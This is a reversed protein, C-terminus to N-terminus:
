QRAWAGYKERFCRTAGAKDQYAMGHSPRHDRLPGPEHRAADDTQDANIGELVDFVGQDPLLELLHGRREFLIEPGPAPLEHALHEHGAGVGRSRSHIRESMEAAGGATAKLAMFSIISCYMVPSAARTNSSIRMGTTVAFTSRHGM